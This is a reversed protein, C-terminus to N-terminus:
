GHLGRIIITGDPYTDIRVNAKPFLEKIFKLLKIDTM